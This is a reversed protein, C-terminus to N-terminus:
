NGCVMVKSKNSPKDPKTGAARIRLPKPREMVNAGDDGITMAGRGVPNVTRTAFIAGV